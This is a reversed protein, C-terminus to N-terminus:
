ATEPGRILALYGKNLLDNTDFTFRPGESTTSAMGSDSSGRSEQCDHTQEDDVMNLKLQAPRDRVKCSPTLMQDIGTRSITDLQLTTDSDSPSSWVPLSEQLVCSNDDIDLEPSKM